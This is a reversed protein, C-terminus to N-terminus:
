ASRLRRVFRFRMSILFPLTVFPPRERVRSVAKVGQGLAPLGRRSHLSQLELLRDLRDEAPLFTVIGEGIKEELLGEIEGYLTRGIRITSLRVMDRTGLEAGSEAIQRQLLEARHGGGQHRLPADTFAAVDAFHDEMEDFLLHEAPLFTISPFIEDTDEIKVFGKHLGEQWFVTVGTRDRGDRLQPIM